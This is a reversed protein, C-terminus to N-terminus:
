SSLAAPPEALVWGNGRRAYVLSLASIPVAEASGPPFALVQLGLTLRDGEVAPPRFELYGGSAVDETAQGGGARRVEAATTLRVPRPLPGVDVGAALNGRSLALAGDREAFQLDALRVPEGGPELPQGGLLGALVAEQLRALDDPDISDGSVASTM